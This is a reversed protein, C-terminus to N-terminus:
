GTDALSHANWNTVSLEDLASLWGVGDMGVNLASGDCLRKRSIFDALGLALCEPIAGFHTFDLEQVHNRAINVAM